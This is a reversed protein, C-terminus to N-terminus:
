KLTVLNNQFLQNITMWEPNYADLAIMLKPQGYKDLNKGQRILRINIFDIADQKKGNFKEIVDKGNEQYMVAVHMDDLKEYEEQTLENADIEDTLVKNKFITMKRKTSQRANLDRNLFVLVASQDISCAFICQTNTDDLAQLGLIDDVFTMKTSIFNIFNMDDFVLIEDTKCLRLFKKVDEPKLRNKSDILEM